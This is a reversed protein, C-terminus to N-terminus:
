LALFLEGLDELAAHTKKRDNVVSKVVALSTSCKRAFELATERIKEFADDDKELMDFFQGSGKTLVATFIKGHKEWFEDVVTQPIHNYLEPFHTRLWGDVQERASEVKEPTALMMAVGLEQANM